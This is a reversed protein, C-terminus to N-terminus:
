KYHHEDASQIGLRIMPENISSPNAVRSKLCEIYDNIENDRNTDNKLLMEKIYKVKDAVPYALDGYTGDTQAYSYSIAELLMDLMKRISPKDNITM